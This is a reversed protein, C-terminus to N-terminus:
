IARVALLSVRPLANYGYFVNLLAFLDLFSYSVINAFRACSIALIYLIIYTRATIYKANASFCSYRAYILPTNFKWEVSYIHELFIVQGRLVVMSLVTISAVHSYRYYRFLMRPIIM